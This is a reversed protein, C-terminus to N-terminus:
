VDSRGGWAEAEGSYQRCSRIRGLVLSRGEQTLHWSEPDTIGAERLQTELEPLLGFVLTNVAPMNEAEEGPHDRFRNLTLGIEAALDGAAFIRREEATTGRSLSLFCQTKARHLALAQEFYGPIHRTSMSEASRQVYELMLHESTVIQGCGKLFSYNFLRDEGFSVGEEFRLGLREIISRRYFKNCNSYILLQRIRIYTDAFAAADAYVNDRVTWTERGCSLLIREIGFICLDAERELMPLSKELFGQQLRDDCDIFTVYSGRAASLGANRAGSAGRHARLLVHLNEWMGSYGALLEATGDDSGDDVAIVECDEPLQSLVSMLCEKLYAKCNYTPIIVSLRANGTGADRKMEM